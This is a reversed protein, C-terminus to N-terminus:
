YHPVPQDPQVQTGIVEGRKTYPSISTLPPAIAARCPGMRGASRRRHRLPLHGELFRSHSIAEVIKRLALDNDAVM